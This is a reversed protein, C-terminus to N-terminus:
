DRDAVRDGEGARPRQREGSPGGHGAIYAARAIMHAAVPATLFVLLVVLAARTSVTRDGFHLAAALFICGVGLSGAKTASHMRSHLDPLRVLGLASVFMFLAGALVLFAVLAALIV